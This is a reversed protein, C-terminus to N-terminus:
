YLSLNITAPDVVERRSILSCTPQGLDSATNLILSALGTECNAATRHFRGYRYREHWRESKTTWYDRVDGLDEANSHSVLLTLPHGRAIHLAPIRSHQTDLWITKEEATYGCPKKGSGFAVKSVLRAAFVCVMFVLVALFL